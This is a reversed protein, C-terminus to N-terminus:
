SSHLLAPALSVTLWGLGSLFRLVISVSVSFSDLRFAASVFELFTTCPELFCLLDCTSAILVIDDVYLFLYVVAPGHRYIFLSTDSKAEKFGTSQLFNAFQSYWGFSLLFNAFRNYWAHPAQKLGYLSKNLHYVLDPKSADVFGALQSCFVTEQLTGHLFANKVDLQHIPWDRSVALSLVTRVTAPKVFPSITEDIDINPCKTFSCLVCRAKCRDLSGDVQIKHRFIWKGTVVNTGPPYPTLEWTRNALLANYEEEMAARWHPDALAARYTCLLPSLPAAHLNIRQVPRHIGAKARKVMTHDNIVPSVGLQPPPASIRPVRASGPRTTASSPPLLRM